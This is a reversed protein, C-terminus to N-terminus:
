WRIAAPPGVMPSSPSYAQPTQDDGAAEAIRVRTYSLDMEVEGLNCARAIELGEQV